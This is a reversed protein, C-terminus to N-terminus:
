LQGTDIALEHATLNRWNGETLDNLDINAVSVRHLRIVKNNVAAVMRKVQHYRGEYITMLIQRPEVLEIKAPLTLKEENRLMVGQELCNIDAQGIPEELWVQYKKGCSKRPSTVKHSWQGDNTILVLGTTDVDLRGAFHFNAINPLGLLNLASPYIEDKTSCIYGRPKHLAIYRFPNHSLLKGQYCVEDTKQVKYASDTLKHSNVLVQGRAILQKAVSRSAGTSQAVLKDLRM